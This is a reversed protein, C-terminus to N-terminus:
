RSRGKPKIVGGQSVSLKAGVSLRRLRQAISDDVALLMVEDSVKLLVLQQGDIKRIGAYSAHLAHTFTFPKHKPIDFGIRRKQEREIAYKEAAAIAPPSPGTIHKSPRIDDAPRTLSAPILAASTRPSQQLNGIAIAGLQSLPALHDKRAPPPATGVRAVNPKRGAGDPM